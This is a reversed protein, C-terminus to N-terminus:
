KALSSELELTNQIGQDLSTFTFDPLLENILSNDFCHNAKNKTRKRTEVQLTTNLKAEIIGLIEKFNYKVGSVVNVVGAYGGFVMRGVVDILDDIYVFERSETGDGWLVIKENTLAKKIFGAPGYAQSRDGAGYILPPRLILLEGKNKASFLKQFLNESAYKAMGYYSTPQVGTKETINTNEIDEGYVATSSLYVLKRVPALELIRCLNVAMTVNKTYNDLNDGCEKKVMSCMVVVTNLDFDKTLKQTDKGNTLDIDKTSYGFVETGSFQAGLYRELHKGIFGTNGLILTKKFEM